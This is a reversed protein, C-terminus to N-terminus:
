QPNERVKIFSVEISNQQLSTRVQNVNDMSTFPGIRVRHWLGKEPLHASQITAVVGLLALRAKLNEAEDTSRFAGAQLFYQESTINSRTRNETTPAAQQQIAQELDQEVMPEEIGPLIKYFDFKPKEDVEAIKKEIPLEIKTEKQTPTPKEENLFPSPAQSIYMWVGIASVLGLTYGIFIGAILSSGSKRTTSTKRSKYDRSM